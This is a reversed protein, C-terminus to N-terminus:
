TVWRRNELLVKDPWLEIVRFEPLMDMLHRLTIQGDHMAEDSYDTLLYRTSQLANLGGRIMEGEAGQVSAWIFDIRHLNREAFFSDLTIWDVDLTSGFTGPRNRPDPEFAHITVNSLGAMWTTDEGGHAGLVLFTKTDTGSFKRQLWERTAAPIPSLVQSKRAIAQRLRLYMAICAQVSRDARLLGAVRDLELTCRLMDEMSWASPHNKHFAVPHEVSYIPREDAMFAHPLWYDWSPRGMSLFTKPFLESDQGHLLFADFGLPERVSLQPDVDYNHRIWCCLGGDAIWRIRQLEWPEISLHIDANIIMVPSSQANAWDLMTNIPVYHRGFVASATEAVPVFSVDFVGSLRALESPHNFSYVDMGAQRWSEICGRQFAVNRTTPPLSTLALIRERNM